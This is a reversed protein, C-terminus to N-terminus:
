RGLADIIHQAWRIWCEADDPNNRSVQARVKNQFAHLQNAATHCQGRDISATAAKLTAIFPRKNKRAINSDNVKGILLELAEGADIVEVTVSDTATGGPHGDDVALVLTHTGAELCNTVLVGTAFPVPSPELFWQYTLADGDPDSSQSGDLVLCAADGACGILAVQHDLDFDYLPSAVIKATPRQNTIPRVTVSVVAAPSTCVGDNVTFSFSDPGSYGAAPTYTGAGSTQLVVTGHAPPSSIAYTLADGDSDTGTLQFNVSSGQEATLSQANAVPCANVCVINLDFTCPASTDDGGNATGGSDQAEVTVRALGCRGPAPTYTLTGDPSVAPQVSFLSPNNNSVNFHVTQGAEASSADYPFGELALDDIWQNDNAGGTRAGFNVQNVAIGSYNALQATITNGDYTFTALGTADVSMSADVFTDKRLYNGSGDNDKPITQVAVRGGRWVIEIGVDPVEVDANDFTDVAVTLGTGTGEEGQFNDLLDNGFNLSYGDAGGGGGGGIRSKWSAQLTEFTQQPFPGIAWGGFGGLDLADTLKLVGGEVRPNPTTAGNPDLIRTGAPPAAFDSTFATSTRTISHVSIGTAWNPVVQAGAGENTQQAPGCVFQPPTNPQAVTLTAVDSTRVAGPIYLVARFRAGNDGLSPAIQLTSGSGPIDFFGAGNNRQWAYFIPQNTNGATAATATVTFTATSPANGDTVRVSTIEWSPTYQGRTNTDGAYYFRVVVTDGANLYGVDATSTVYGPGQHNPSDLVFVTQGKLDSASGPLVTGNPGGATFAVAPVLTFPGGNISVQLGGGDWNGSEFSYRHSFSVQVFGARSVTLSPSSLLSTMPHSVEAGDQVVSWSGAAGSYTWPTNFTKGAPNEVTFGGDSATFDQDLLPGGGGTPPVLLFTLDQPQGTINITAGVPNAFTGVQGAPIPRLADTGGELRAAVQAFDGGGAEKYLVEIYYRNGAVLPIAATPHGEFAGCCGTEEQVKQAGAKDQGNPNFWLESADDSRLYLIWNGSAPPVFIGSLRAGFNEHSDDPYALRTDLGGIYRTVSPSNPFSPHSTLASVAVTPIQGATTDGSTGNYAEFLVFGCSFAFSQFTTMSNPEIANGALDEVGNITVKYTTNEKMLENLAITVTREDAGLTIAGIALTGGGVESVAYGFLDTASRAEVRESFVVTVHDFFTSGASSVITPKINDVTVSLTAEASTVVGRVPIEISVSYKSQDDLATAKILTLTYGNNSFTYLPDGAAIAVGDRMWTIRTECNYFNNVTAGVTFRAESNETVTLSDPQDTITVSLNSTDILAAFRSPGMVNDGNVPVPEVPNAPDPGVFQAAVALNDGGGGEKMLAEVYYLQGAQLNILASQNEPTTANRRATGTWDRRGNWVPERAIRVRNAPSADTSLWLEGGDDSSMYFKYNGTQDPKVFGLIRAGYNDYVDRDTLEFLNTFCVLDPTHSLYKASSTLDAVNVGAIGFYYEKVLTGELLVGTRVNAVTPNPDMTVVGLLEKIDKITVTYATDPALASTRVVVDRGNAAVTASQVTVPPVNTGGRTVTYNATNQATGPDLRNDFRVLLTNFSADVSVGLVHPPLPSVVGLTANASTASSFENAVVVSFQAGDDSLQASGLTYSAGTAGAINVGNRRWQYTYGPTGDAVVSFSAPQSAPVTANAPQRTIQVPGLNYFLTGDYVRSPMFNAAPIPESGNAVAPGGPPLWAASGNNGGGGESFITELYYKGVALNKPTSINAPPTGRSAQNGGAIYERRGNWAPERAIEQKNAPQDDSSLYTIGFDDSCHYFTYSGATTINLVGSIRSSFRENSGTDPIPDEFVTNAEVAPFVGADAMKVVDGIGQAVADSTRYYGSDDTKNHTVRIARAEYGAGHVFTTTAATLSGGTSDEVGAVDVTYTTGETLASTTLQVSTPGPGAIAATVTAGSVSYNLPEYAGAGVPRNFEVRVGTPNGRSNAAVVAFPATYNFKFERFEATATPGGSHRSVGLGVWLTPALAGGGWTATDQTGLPVWTSGDASSSATLVAGARVLRVYKHGNSPRQNECDTCDEHEGGNLGNVNDLGTRYAFRNDNAGDGGSSTPVALPTVRPFAMRSFESLSERVMLGAKSWRANPTVSEVKVQVDFDGTVETAAYTFEDRQAWIDNGGGVITFSGGLNDTVTGIKNQGINVVKPLQSPASAHFMAMQAATVNGGGVRLHFNAGGHVGPDPNGSHNNGDSTWDGNFYTIEIPYLGAALFNADMDQTEDGHSGDREAIDIGGITIRSGDDSTVGLSIVGAAPVNIYGRFRYAGDDNNAPTGVFTSADTGLYPTPVGTLDNGTYNLLTATFTGTPPGFGQIQVDIRNAPVTRGDTLISVPPRKWYEGKLAGGAYGVPGSVALNGPVDVASTPRPLGLCLGLMVTSIIIRKLIFHSM